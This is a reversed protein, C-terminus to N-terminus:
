RRGEKTWGANPRSIGSPGKPPTSPMPTPKVLIWGRWVQDAAGMMVKEWRRGRHEVITGTPMWWTLWWLPPKPGRPESVPMSIIKM